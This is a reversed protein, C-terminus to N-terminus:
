LVNRENDLGISISTRKRYIITGKSKSRVRIVMTDM